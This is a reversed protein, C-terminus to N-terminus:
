LVSSYFIFFSFVFLLFSLSFHRSFLYSLFFCFALHILLLLLLLFQTYNYNPVGQLAQLRPSLIM